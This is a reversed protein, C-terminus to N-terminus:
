ESLGNTEMGEMESRIRKCEMEWLYVKVPLENIRAPWVIFMGIITYLIEEFINEGSILYKEVVADVAKETIRLGYRKIISITFCAMFILMSVPGAGMYMLLIKWM